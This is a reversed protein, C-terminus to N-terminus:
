VGFLPIGAAGRELLEILRVSKAIKDAECVQREYRLHILALRRREAKCRECMAKVSPQKCDNCRVRPKRIRM